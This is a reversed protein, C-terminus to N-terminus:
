AYELLTQYVVEIAANDVRRDIVLVEHWTVSNYIIVGKEREDLYKNRLEM